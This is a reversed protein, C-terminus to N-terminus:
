TNDRYGCTSALHIRGGAAHRPRPFTHVHGNVTVQLPWQNDQEERAYFYCDAGQPPTEGLDFSVQVQVHQFLEEGHQTSFAGTEHTILHSAALRLGGGEDVAISATGPAPIGTLRYGVMGAHKIQM